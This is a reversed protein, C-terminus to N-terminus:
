ILSGSTRECKWQSLNMYLSVRCFETDRVFSYTMRSDAVDVNFSLLRVISNDACRIYFPRMEQFYNFLNWLDGAELLASFIEGSSSGASFDAFAAPLVVQQPVIPTSYKYIQYPNLVYRNFVPMGDNNRSVFEWEVNGTMEDYRQRSIVLWDRDNIGSMVLITNRETLTRLVWFGGDPAMTQSVLASGAGSYLNYYDGKLRYVPYGTREMELRTFEAIDAVTTKETASVQVCEGEGTLESGPIRTLNEIDVFEIAM